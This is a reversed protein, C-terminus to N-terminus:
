TKLVVDGTPVSQDAHELSLERLQPVHEVADILQMCWALPLPMPADLQFLQELTKKYPSMCKQKVMKGYMSEVQKLWKPLKSKSIGKQLGADHAEDNGKLASDIQRQHLAFQKCRLLGHKAVSEISDRGCVLHNSLANFVAADAQGLKQAAATANSATFVQETSASLRGCHFLLLTSRQASRKGIDGMALLVAAASTSRLVGHTKVNGPTMRWARMEDLICHMAQLDGGNSNIELAIDDYAWYSRAASLTSRMQLALDADIEGHITLELADPTFSTHLGM